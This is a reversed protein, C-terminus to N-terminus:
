GDRPPWWLYNKKRVQAVRVSRARESKAQARAAGVGHKELVAMGARGRDDCEWARVVGVGGHGMTTGGRECLLLVALSAQAASSRRAWLM